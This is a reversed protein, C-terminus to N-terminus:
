DASTTREYLRAFDSVAADDYRGFLADLDALHPM